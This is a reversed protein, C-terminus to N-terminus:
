NLLGGDHQGRLKVRCDAYESTGAKLGYSQCAKDDQDAFKDPNDYGATGPLCDEHHFGV